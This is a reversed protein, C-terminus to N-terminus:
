YVEEADMDRLHPPPPIGHHGTVLARSQDDYGSVIRAIKANLRKDLWVSNEELYDGLALIKDGLDDQVCTNEETFTSAFFLEEDAALLRRRLEVMIKAQEEFVTQQKGQTRGLPYAILASIIAGVAAILLENM